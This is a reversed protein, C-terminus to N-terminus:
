KMDRQSESPARITTVIETVRDDDFQLTRNLENKALNKQRLFHHRAAKERQRVRRGRDCSELSVLENGCTCREGHSALSVDSGGTRRWRVFLVTRAAPASACWPPVGFGRRPIAREGETERQSREARGVEPQLDVVRRAVTRAVLPWRRLLLACIANSRQRERLM